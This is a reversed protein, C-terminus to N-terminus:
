TKMRAVYKCQWCEFSTNEAPINQQANCRPCTVAQMGSPAEPAALVAALVGFVGFIFGLVAFLNQSRGKRQAIVGAAIACVVAVAFFALGVGNSM